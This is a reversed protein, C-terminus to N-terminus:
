DQEAEIAAWVPPAPPAAIAEALEAATVGHLHLHQHVIAPPQSYSIIPPQVPAPAVLRRM